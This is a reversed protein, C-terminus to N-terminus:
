GFGLSNWFIWSEKGNNNVLIQSASQVFIDRNFYLIHLLRHKYNKTIQM